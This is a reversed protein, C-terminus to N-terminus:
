SLSQTCCDSEIEAIQDVFTQDHLSGKILWITRLYCSSSESLVEYGNM